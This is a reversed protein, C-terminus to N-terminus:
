ILSFSFFGIYFLTEQRQKKLTPSFCYSEFALRELLQGLTKLGFGQLENYREKSLELNGLDLNFPTQFYSYGNDFFNINTQKTTIVKKLKRNFKKDSYWHLTNKKRKSLYQTTHLFPMILYAISSFKHTLLLSAERLAQRPSLRGNTFIEFVLIENQKNLPELSEIRFGIRKILRIPCGLSIWPITPLTKQTQLKKTKFPLTKGFIHLNKPNQNSRLNKKVLFRGRM